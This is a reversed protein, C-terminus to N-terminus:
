PSRHAEDFFMARGRMVIILSCENGRPSPELEQRLIRTGNM